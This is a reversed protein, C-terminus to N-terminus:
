HPLRRIRYVILHKYNKMITDDEIFRTNNNIIEQVEEYTDIDTINARGKISCFKYKIIYM